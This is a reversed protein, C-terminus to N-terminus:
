TSAGDDDAEGGHGGLAAILQAAAKQAAAIERLRLKPVARRVTKGAPSPKGLSREASVARERLPPTRAPRFLHSTCVASKIDALRARMGVCAPIWKRHRAHTGRGPIM